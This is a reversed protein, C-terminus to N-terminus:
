RGVLAHWRGPDTWDGPGAGDLVLKVTPPDAPHRGGSDEIVFADGSAPPRRTNTSAEFPHGETDVHLLTTAPVVFTVSVAGSRPTAPPMTPAAPGSAAPVPEAPVPPASVPLVVAANLAEVARAHGPHAAHAAFLAGILLAFLAVTRARGLHGM